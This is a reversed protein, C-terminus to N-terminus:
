LVIDKLINCIYFPLAQLFPCPFPPHFPLSSFPLFFLSSLARCPPPSPFIQKETILAMLTSLATKISETGSNDVSVPKIYFWFLPLFVFTRHTAVNNHFFQCNRGSSFQGRQFYLLYTRHLLPMYLVLSLWRPPWDRGLLRMGSFKQSWDWGQPHPCFLWEAMPQCFLRVAGCASHLGEGEASM